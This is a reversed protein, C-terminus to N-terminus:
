EQHKHWQSFNSQDKGFTANFYSGCNLSFRLDFLIYDIGAYGKLKGM